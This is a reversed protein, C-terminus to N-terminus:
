VTKCGIKTNSEDVGSGVSRRYYGPCCGVINQPHNAFYCFARGGDVLDIRARRKALVGVVTRM